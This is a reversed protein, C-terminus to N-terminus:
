PAVAAVVVVAAVAAVIAAVAAAVNAVANAVDSAVLPHWMQGLKPWLVLLIAALLEPVLTWSGAEVWAAPEAEALPGFLHCSDFLASQVSYAWHWLQLHELHRARQLIAGGQMSDALGSHSVAMVTMCLPYPWSHCSSLSPLPSLHLGWLRLATEVLWPLLAWPVDPLLPPVFVHPAVAPSLPHAACLPPPWSPCVHQM